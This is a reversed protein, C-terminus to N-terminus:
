FQEGTEDELAEGHDLVGSESVDKAYSFLLGAERTDLSVFAFQSWPLFVNVKCLSATQTSELFECMIMWM